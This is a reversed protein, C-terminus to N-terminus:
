FINALASTQRAWSKQKDLFNLNCSLALVYMTIRFIALEHYVGQFWKTKILRYKVSTETIKEM